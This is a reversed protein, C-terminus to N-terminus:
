DLRMAGLTMRNRDHGGGGNVLNLRGRAIQIDLMHQARLIFNLIALKGAVDDTGQAKTFALDDCRFIKRGVITQIEVLAIEIRVAVVVDFQQFPDALRSWQIRVRFNLRGRPFVIPRQFFIFAAPLALRHVIDARNVGGSRQNTRRNCRQRDPRQGSRLALRHIKRGTQEAIDRRRQGAALQFHSAFFIEPRRAGTDKDEVMLAFGVHHDEGLQDTPVHASHGLFLDPIRRHDALQHLQRARHENVPGIGATRDFRHRRQYVSDLNVAFGDDDRRFASACKRRLQPRELFAREV